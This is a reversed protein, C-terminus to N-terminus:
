DPVVVESSPTGSPVSWRVPWIGALIYWLSLSIAALPFLIGAWGIEFFVLWMVVGHAAAGMLGIWGIWLSGLSRERQGVWILRILAVAFFPYILMALWSHTTFVPTSQGATLAEADVYAMTHVGMEVAELATAVMAFPLWRNMSTSTLQPRRLLVLGVTLVVLGVFLTSHARFWTPDVLMEDMRGRPHQSSGVLYLIGGVVFMPRWMRSPDLRM